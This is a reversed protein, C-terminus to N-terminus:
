PRDQLFKGTNVAPRLAHMKRALLIPTAFNGVHGSILAESELLEYAASITTRNLGLLGALERTAPLKTGNPFRGAQVSDRIQEFLQRYLPVDSRPDVQPLPNMEALCVM